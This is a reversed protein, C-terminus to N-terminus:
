VREVDVGAEVLDDVMDDDLSADTVLLAVEEPAAFRHLHDQGAKSADSVVVVRRAAQVMARKVVAEGQHPTTFGHAASFGNTGMFAVDVFTGELARLTWDGVAAGTRPRILGGLIFAEIEPKGQLVAAVTISNTVVTLPADDPLLRALALTTTGADLLITGEEPIEELARRAIRLKEETLREARLELGPELETRQVPLAGGHVRRLAGLRELATLDRRVTEPTVGFQDALAAVEVRGMEHARALIARQREAAYPGRAQAAPHQEEPVIGRGRGLGRSVQAPPEGKRKHQKPRNRKAHM